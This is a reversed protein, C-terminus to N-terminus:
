YDKGYALKDTSSLKFRLTLYAPQVKFTKSLSECVKRLKISQSLKVGSLIM